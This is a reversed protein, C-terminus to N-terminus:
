VQHGADCRYGDMHLDDGHRPSPHGCVFCHAVPWPWFDKQPTVDITERDILGRCLAALDFSM